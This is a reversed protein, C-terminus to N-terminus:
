LNEFAEYIPDIDYTLPLVHGEGELAMLDIKQIHNKLKKYTDKSAQVWNKDATGYVILARYSKWEELLKQSRLRGPIVIFGRFTEPSASIIDFTVLGGNSAGSIVWDHDNGNENKQIAEIYALWDKKKFNLMKNENNNIAYIKIYDKFTSNPTYVYNYYTALDASFDGGPFCWLISYTKTPDFDKPYEVGYTINGTASNMTRIQMLRNFSLFESAPGFPAGHLQLSTFVIAVLGLIKM